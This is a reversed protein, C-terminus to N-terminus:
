YGEKFVPVGKHGRGIDFLDFCCEVVRTTVIFDASLVEAALLLAHLVHGSGILYDKGGAGDSDTKAVELFMGVHDAVAIGPVREVRVICSCTKGPVLEAFVKNLSEEAM